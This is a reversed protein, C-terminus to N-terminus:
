RKQLVLTYTSGRLGSQELSSFCRAVVDGLARMLRRPLRTIRRGSGLPVLNGLSQQWGFRNWILGGEDSATVMRVDLGLEKMRNTLLSIPILSLHRPADVHTWHRRLVRFQAAQPNPAAIILIGSPLLRSAAVELVDWPDPLHEIVHWLTIVNYPDAARLSGSVDASHTARVGIVDTLFQCCREDLEITDVDYGAEKAWFAFGGTAPGIDLLRGRPVFRQVIEVKYREVMSGAALEALSSPISYYDAPYYDDLNAPIPWLFVLGCATCRYYQFSEQTLRRNSDKVRFAPLAEEGCNSCHMRM